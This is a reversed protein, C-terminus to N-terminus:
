RLKICCRASRQGALFLTLRQVGAPTRPPQHIMRVRTMALRRLWWRLERRRMTPWQYPVPEPKWQADIKRQLRQRAQDDDQAGARQVMDLAANLLQEAQQYGGDGDERSRCVAAAATLRAPDADCHQLLLSTVAAIREASAGDTLGLAFSWAQVADAHTQGDDPPQRPPEM